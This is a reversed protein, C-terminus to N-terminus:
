KSNYKKLIIQLDILNGIRLFEGGLIIKGGNNGSVFPGLMISSSGNQGGLGGLGNL